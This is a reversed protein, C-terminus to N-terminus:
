HTDPIKAPGLLLGLDGDVARPPESWGGVLAAVRGGAGTDEKWDLWCLNADADDHQGHRGREARKRRRQSKSGCRCRGQEDNFYGCPFFCEGGGPSWAAFGV